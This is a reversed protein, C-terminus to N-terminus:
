NEPMDSGDPGRIDLPRIYLYWVMVIGGLYGTMWITSGILDTTVQIRSGGVQLTGLTAAVVDTLLFNVFGPIVVAGVLLLGGTLISSRRM